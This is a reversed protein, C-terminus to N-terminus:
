CLVKSSRVAAKRQSSHAGPKAARAGADARSAVSGIAPRHRDICAVTQADRRTDLTKTFILAHM